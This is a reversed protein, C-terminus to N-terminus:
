LTPASPARTGNTLSRNFAVDIAKSRLATQLRWGTRRCRGGPLARPRDLNTAVSRPTAHPIAKPGFPLEVDAVSGPRMRRTAALSRFPRSGGPSRQRTEDPNRGRRSSRLDRGRRHRRGIPQIPTAQRCPPADPASRGAGPCRRRRRRVVRHRRSARPSSRATGTRGRGASRPRFLEEGPARQDPQRERRRAPRDHRRDVGDVPEVDRQASPQERLASRM